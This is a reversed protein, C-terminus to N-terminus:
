PMREDMDYLAVVDAAAQYRTLRARAGDTPGYTRFHKPGYAEAAYWRTRIRTVYRTSRGTAMDLVRYTGEAAREYKLTRM